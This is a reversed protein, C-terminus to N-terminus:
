YDILEEIFLQIFLDISHSKELIRRDLDTINDTESDM